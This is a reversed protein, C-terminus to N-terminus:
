GKPQQAIGKVAGFDVGVMMPYVMTWVLVAVVLNISAVEASAVASVLQPALAGVTIGSVMALAVWISLYREFLGMSEDNHFTDDNM